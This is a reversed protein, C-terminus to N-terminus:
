TWGPVACKSACARWTLSPRRSRHPTLPRARCVAFAPSAPLAPWRATAPGLFPQFTLMMGTVNVALIEAFVANDAPDGTLTGASVGANAIVVDPCGAQGIFDAACREIVAADRVDAEYVHCRVPLSAALERLMGARRAILALTAGRRAYEIALARGIGSSAGTIVVRLPEDM